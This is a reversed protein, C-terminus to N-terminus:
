ATKGDADCLSTVEDLTFTRAIFKRLVQDLEGILIFPTSLERYTAVVDATTVIGAAAKKDDRVFL